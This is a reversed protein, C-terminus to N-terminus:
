DRREKYEEPDFQIFFQWFLFAGAIGFVAAWVPANNWWEFVAWGSIAATMLFRRYFPLFFPHRTEFLRKTMRGLKVAPAALHM